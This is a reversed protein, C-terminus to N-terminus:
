RKGDPADLLEIKANAVQLASDINTELENLEDLEEEKRQIDYNYVVQASIKGEKERMRLQNVELQATQDNLASVIQRKMRCIQRKHLILSHITYKKGSVEVVTVLNTYDLNRKLTEYRKVIDKASQLAESVKKAEGQGANKPDFSDERFSPRAAYKQIFEVKQKLKKDCLKIENMAEVIKTM